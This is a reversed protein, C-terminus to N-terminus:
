ISRIIYVDYDGLFEFGYKKYLNVAAQNTRHVELKVQYGIERAVKMTADMLFQGLKRGQWDTAIGFHHLYTRRGDVTMWSTGIIRHDLMNELVLMRGGSNLTRLIVDENDGRHRGGLGISEWLSVIAEYDGAVFDRVLFHESHIPQNTDM